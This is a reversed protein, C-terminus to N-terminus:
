HNHILISWGRNGIENPAGYGTPNFNESSVYVSSSDVIVYKAHNYRFPRKQRVSPRCFSTRPTIQRFVSNHLFRLSSKLLWCCGRPKSCAEPSCEATDGRLFSGVQM